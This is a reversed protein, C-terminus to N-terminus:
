RYLGKINGWSTDEVSVPGCLVSGSACPTGGESFGKFDHPWASPNAECDVTVNAGTLCMDLPTAKLVLWSGANVPGTPCGGVALLLAQASGANLFGNATNFALVTNGASASVGFEAASMGGLTSCAFWLYMTSVGAGVPGSNVNPDSPSSSITWGYRGQANASTAVLVLAAAAFFRSLKM